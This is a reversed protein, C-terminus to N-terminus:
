VALFDSGLTAALLPQKQYCSVKPSSSPVVGRSQGNYLQIRLETMKLVSVRKNRLRSVACSQFVLVSYRQSLLSTIDANDLTLYGTEDDEGNAERVRSNKFISHPILQPNASSLLVCDNSTIAHALHARPWAINQEPSECQSM